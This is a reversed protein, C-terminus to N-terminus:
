RDRGIVDAIKLFSPRFDAGEAEAAPLNILIRPRGDQNGFGVAIGARSYSPVGSVSVVGRLRTEATIRGLETEGLPTVYLLDVGASTLTSGLDEGDPIAVIRASRGSSDLFGSASFAQTFEEKVSVSAPHDVEFLIGVVLGDESRSDFTRDFQVVRSLLSAQVEVPIPMDQGHGPIPGLCLALSASLVALVRLSLKSQPSM